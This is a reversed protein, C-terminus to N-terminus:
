ALAASLQHQAFGAIRFANQRFIFSVLLRAKYVSTMADCPTGPNDLLWQPHLLLMDTLREWGRSAPHNWSLVARGGNLVPDKIM